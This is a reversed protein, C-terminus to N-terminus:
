SIVAEEWELHNCRECKSDPKRQVKVINGCSSCAFQGNAKRQEKKYEQDVDPLTSLGVREDDKYRRFTFGGNTEMYVRQLKGLNDIGESRLEALLRERTIRAQEMSDLKLCGDVVLTNIDDLVLSEFKQNSASKAAIWRQFMIVIAAIILPPLLGRSPDLLSVGIAAALSVLAIMENRTLQAGMRNGMLRMSVMLLLYMFAARIVAELLFTPPMDGMFIRMWDTIRIEEPKM